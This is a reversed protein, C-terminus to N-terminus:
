PESALTDANDRRAFGNEGRAALPVLALVRGGRYPGIDRWQMGKFQAENYPQVVAAVAILAFLACWVWTRRSKM